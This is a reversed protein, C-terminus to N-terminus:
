CETHTKARATWATATAFSTYAVGQLGQERLHSSFPVIAAVMACRSVVRGARSAVCPPVTVLLAAKLGSDTIAGIHLFWKKNGLIDSLVSAM